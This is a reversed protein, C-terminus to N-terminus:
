YFDLLHLSLKKTKVPEASYIASLHSFTPRSGDIRGGSISNMDLCACEVYISLMAFLTGCRLVLSLSMETM